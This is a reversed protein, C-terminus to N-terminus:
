SNSANFDAELIDKIENDYCVMCLNNFSLKFDFVEFCNACVYLTVKKKPEEKPPEETNVILNINTDSPAPAAPTPFKFEPHLHKYTRWFMRYKTNNMCNAKIIKEKNNM